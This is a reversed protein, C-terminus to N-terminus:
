SGVRRRDYRELLLESQEQAARGGAGIDVLKGQIGCAKPDKLVSDFLHFSNDSQLSRTAISDCVLAPILAVGDRHQM